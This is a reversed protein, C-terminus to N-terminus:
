MGRPNHLLLQGQKAPGRKWFMYLISLRELHYTEIYKILINKGNKVITYYVSLNMYYIFNKSKGKLM